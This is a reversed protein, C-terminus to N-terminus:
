MQKIGKNTKYDKEDEDSDDKDDVHTEDRPGLDKVKAKDGGWPIALASGM